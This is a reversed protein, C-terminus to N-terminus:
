WRQRCGIVATGRGHHRRHRPGGRLLRTLLFILGVLAFVPLLHVVVALVVAVAALVLLAFLAARVAVSTGARVAALTAGTRRSGAAAAARDLPPLDALLPALDGETRASLALSSREDHEILTLRGDAFHRALAALAAEREADGVRLAARTTREPTGRWDM